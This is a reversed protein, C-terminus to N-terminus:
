ETAPRSWKRDRESKRRMEGTVLRKWFWVFWAVIRLVANSLGFVPYLLLVAWRKGTDFERQIVLFPYSELLLYLVYLLGLQFWLGNWLIMFLSWIRFPESLVVFINYAM